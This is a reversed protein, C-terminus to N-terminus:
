GHSMCSPPKGGNLLYSYCESMREAVSMSDFEIRAFSRGREGMSRLTCSDFSTAEEIANYLATESVDVWWGAALKTLCKWPAGKTTIVPKGALMAEAVVNGFNESHTPLIFLECAALLAAREQDHVAGTLIASGKTLTADFMQRVQVEYEPTGAGAIVLIWDNRDASIREWARALFDLGKKPHLHSMFLVIRRDVLLPWKAHALALHDEGGDLVAEVGNPIIALPTNIGLARVYGAEMMSTVHIVAANRFNANETVLHLLRKQFVNRSMIWPDLQGRPSIVLPVSQKVAALRAATAPWMRIGHTHILDYKTRYLHRLMGSSYGYRPFFRAADFLQPVIPHWAANDRDKREDCLAIVEVEHLKALNRSLSRVSSFLGGANRSIHPTVVAVKM